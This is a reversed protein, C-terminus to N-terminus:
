RKRRLRMLKFTLGIALGVFAAVIPILLLANDSITGILGHTTTGNGAIADWIQAVVSLFLELPNLPLPEDGM